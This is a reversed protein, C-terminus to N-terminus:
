RPKALGPIFNTNCRRSSKCLAHGLFQPDPTNENVWGYNGIDYVHHERLREATEQDLYETLKRTSIFKEVAM